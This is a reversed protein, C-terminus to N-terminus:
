YISHTRYLTFRGSKGAVAYPLFRQSRYATEQQVLRECEGENPDFGILNTLPALRTWYEPPRGSAGLDLLNIGGGIDEPTVDEFRKMAVTIRCPIITSQPRLTSAVSKVATGM